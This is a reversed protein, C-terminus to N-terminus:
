QGSEKTGKMEHGKCVWPSGLRQLAQETLEKNVWTVPENVRGSFAKLGRSKRRWRVPRPQAAEPPMTAGAMLLGLATAYDPGASAAPLGHFTQPRGIRVQKNLIRQPLNARARLSALRRRHPGRPPGGRCRLRQRAPAYESRGSNRGAAAPHHAHAHLAARAHAGEDGDEGMQPVAVVDTGTEIDGLAAGYLTKIREAASLPAALM